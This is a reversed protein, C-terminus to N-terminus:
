QGFKMETYRRAKNQRQGVEKNGVESPKMKNEAENINSEKSSPPPLSSTQGATWAHYAGLSGAAGALVPLWTMESNRTGNPQGVYGPFAMGVTPVGIGGGHQQGAFQMVPLFTPNGTFNQDGYNGGYPFLSMGNKLIDGKGKGVLEMKSNTSEMTSEVLNTPSSLQGPTSQVQDPLPARNSQQHPPVPQYMMRGMPSQGQGRGKNRTHFPQQQTTNKVSNNDIYLKDMRLTDSVNKGTKNNSQNVPYTERKIEKNSSGSPYFPPSAYNLGNKTSPFESSESTSTNAHSAKDLSKLPGRETNNKSASQYMKPGRGRPAKPTNRQSYEHNEGKNRDRAQNHNHNRGRSMRRGEKYNREQMSMEEFKDHGWRKDDRTEWLKRSDPTRRHKGSVSDRFRDDHMYFAGATPVSFPDNEKKEEEGQEEVNENVNADFQDVNDQVDVLDKRLVKAELGQTDSGGHHEGFQEEGEGVKEPLEDELDSKEEDYDAAAGQGDSECDSVRSNTRMERGRDRDEEEEDDSAERRRMKLSLKAQEPDSEYEEDGVDM